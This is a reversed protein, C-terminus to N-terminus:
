EKPPPPGISPFFMYRIRKGGSGHLLLQAFHTVTGHTVGHYDAIKTLAEAIGSEALMRTEEQPLPPGATLRVTNPDTEQLRDAIENLTLGEGQLRRLERVLNIITPSYVARVAGNHWQKQPRPLVNEREWYRLDRETVDLGGEDLYEIVEQRTILGPGAGTPAPASGVGSLTLIPKSSPEHDM